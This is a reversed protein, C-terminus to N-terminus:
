SNSDCSGNHSVFDQSLKQKRQVLVATIDFSKTLEYVFTFNVWIIRPVM